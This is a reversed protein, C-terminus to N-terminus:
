AITSGGWFLKKAGWFAICIAIVLDARGGLPLIIGIAIVLLILGEVRTWVDLFSFVKALVAKMAM